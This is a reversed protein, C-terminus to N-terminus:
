FKAGLYKAVEGVYVYNSRPLDTRADLVVKDSSKFENPVGIYVMCRKFADRGSSKKYPLMGRITRRVIRDPMRPHFPGKSQRMPGVLDRRDEFRKFVSTPKGTIVAKEANVVVVSEGTLLQKAVYSALRGLIMEEADVVVVM